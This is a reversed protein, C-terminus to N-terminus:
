GNGCYRTVVGADIQVNIRDHRFDMTMAKPQGDVITPRVTWGREKAWAELEPLTQGEVDSLKFGEPTGRKCNHGGEPMPTGGSGHDADAGGVGPTGAANQDSRDSNNSVILLAGLALVLFIGMYILPHQHLRHPPGSQPLENM